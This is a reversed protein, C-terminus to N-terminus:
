STEEYPNPVEFGNEREANVGERWARAMDERTYGMGFTVVEGPPRSAYHLDDPVAKVVIKSEGDILSRASNPERLKILLSELNRQTLELVPLGGTAGDEIYKM